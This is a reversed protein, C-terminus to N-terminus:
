KKLRKQEWKTGNTGFQDWTKAMLHIVVHPYLPFSLPM